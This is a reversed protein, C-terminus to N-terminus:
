KFYLYLLIITWEYSIIYVILEKKSDAVV